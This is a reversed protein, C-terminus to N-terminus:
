PSFFQIFSPLLDPPTVELSLAGLLCNGERHGRSHMLGTPEPDQCYRGRMIEGARLAPLAKQEQKDRAQRMIRNTEDVREERM